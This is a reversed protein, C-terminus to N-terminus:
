AKVSVLVGQKSKWDESRKSSTYKEEHFLQTHIFVLASPFGCKNNEKLFDFILIELLETTKVTQYYNATNFSGLLGRM